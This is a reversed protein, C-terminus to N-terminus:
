TGAHGKLVNKHLDAQDFLKWGWGCRVCLQQNHSELMRQLAQAREKYGGAGDDAIADTTASKEASLSAQGASPLPIHAMNLLRHLQAVEEAQTQKLEEVAVAHEQMLKSEAQVIAQAREQSVAAVLLKTFNGNAGNFPLFVNFGELLQKERHRLSKQLRAHEERQAAVADMQTRLEARVTELTTGLDSLQTRLAVNSQEKEKINALAESLLVNRDGVSANLADKKEKLKTCKQILAEHKEQLALASEKESVLAASLTEITASHEKQAGDALAVAERLQEVTQHLATNEAELEEAREKYVPSVQLAHMEALEAQTSELTEQLALCTQEFGSEDFNQTVTSTVKMARSGFMLTGQTDTLHNPSPQITLILSTLSNGGLSEQLLRTLTSSRYPVHSANGKALAAVCNGLASLSSNIKKAEELRAGTVGSKKIRESGALDLAYLKGALVAREGGTKTKHVKCILCAHSRSSQANLNTFASIRNQNGVHIVELFDQVSYIQVEAVDHVFVGKKPDERLCIKQNQPQLLDQLTDLYVQVYSLSISYMHDTDRAVTDFIERAARPIVGAMYEDDVEGMMTHTKGSGTMGYAILSANFGNLVTQVVDRSTAAYVDAQTASAPLCGDFTYTPSVGGSLKLRVSSTSPDFTEILSEVEGFAPRERVYVKVREPAVTM